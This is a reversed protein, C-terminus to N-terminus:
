LKARATSTAMPTAAFKTNPWSMHISRRSTGPPGAAYKPSFVSAHYLVKPVEAPYAPIKIPSARITLEKLYKTVISWKSIQTYNYRHQMIVPNLRQSVTGGATINRPDVPILNAYGGKYRANVLIKKARPITDIIELAAGFEKKSFPRGAWNPVAQTEKDTPNLM